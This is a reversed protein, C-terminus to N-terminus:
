QNRFDFKDVPVDLTHGNIVVTNNDIWIITASDERYNWYINQTKARSDNLTLEGRVSNATTAGRNTVYAKVTYKGDPSTEETLYEGTPLRELDFFAWYVGYGVLGIVILSAILMRNLLKKIFLKEEYKVNMEKIEM